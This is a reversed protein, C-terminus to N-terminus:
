RWRFTGFWFIQFGIIYSFLCLQLAIHGFFFMFIFALGNLFSKNWLLKWIYLCVFLLHKNNIMDTSFSNSVVSSNIGDPFSLGVAATDVWYLFDVISVHLSATETTWKPLIKLIDLILYNTVKQEYKKRVTIKKKLEIKNIVYSISETSKIFTQKRQKQCLM